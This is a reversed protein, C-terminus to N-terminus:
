SNPLVSCASVFPKAASLMQWTDQMFHYIRAFSCMRDTHRGFSFQGIVSGINASAKLLGSLNNPLNKGGYLRYQLM